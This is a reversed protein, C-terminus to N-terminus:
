PALGINKLGINEEMGLMINMNQVAQGSAGKVLNDIASFVAIKKKDSSLNFSLHCYNSGRVSKIDPENPLIKVFQSKGYETKYVTEIEEYGVGDKLDSYITAMIGRDVPLLHPIFYFDINEKGFKNIEQEIEPQHRHNFSSYAKFNENVKTYIYEQAVKRGAGSIGSKADVIIQKEILKNKLLPFLGLLIATSYCGPNAVLFAKQIKEKYIESLGYVTKEILDFGPHEKKYWDEYTKKDDLRFDASLDIVKKGANVLGSVIEIGVGHPLATFFFDASKIAEDMNFKKFTYDIIGEFQPFLNSINEGAYKNASIYTIDVHPHKLLIKILESGTYGSGGIIGVKIKFVGM